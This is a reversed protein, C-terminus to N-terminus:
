TGSNRLARRGVELLATDGAARGYEILAIAFQLARFRARRWSAGDIPGYADRFAPRAPPPLFTWAIMLDMAPDGAHLDGWDIVGCLAGRRDVLLHREYLDGHVWRPGGSWARTDALDSLTDRLARARAAGLRELRAIRALRERLKGVRSALDARGLADGPADAPPTLSHLARLTRGLPAANAARARDSLRASCATKGPLLPYGAFPYPYGRAPGGRYQPVPVPVPLAPAVVRLWEIETLICDVAIRRRPFRFVLSGNVLFAANDWGIGLPQLRSPALQPFQDDVLRAAAAADLAVDADWERPKRVRRRGGM